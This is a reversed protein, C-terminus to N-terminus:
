KKKKKEDQKIELFVREYITKVAFSNTGCESELRQLYNKVLNYDMGKFWSYAVTTIDSIKIKEFDLVFQISKKPFTNDQKIRTFREESVAAILKGSKFLCASATEDNCIGLTYM